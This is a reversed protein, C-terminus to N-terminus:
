NVGIMDIKFDNYEEKCYSRDRLYVVPSVGNENLYDQVYSDAQCGHPPYYYPTDVFEDPEIYEFPGAAYEVVQIPTDGEDLYSYGFVPTDEPFQSLAAILEGVTATIKRKM